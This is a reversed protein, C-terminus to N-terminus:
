VKSISKTLLQYTLAFVLVKQLAIMTYEIRVKCTFEVTRFAGFIHM